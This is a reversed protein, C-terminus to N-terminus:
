RYLSILHPHLSFDTCCWSSKSKTFNISSEDESSNNQQCLSFLEKEEMKQTVNHRAEMDVFLIEDNAIAETQKERIKGYNYVDNEMLETQLWTTSSAPKNRCEPAKLLRGSQPLVVNLKPMHGRITSPQHHIPVPRIIGPQACGHELGNQPDLGGTDRFFRYDVFTTPFTPSKKSVSGGTHFTSKTTDSVKSGAQSFSDTSSAELRDGNSESNAKSKYSSTKCTVSTLLHKNDM